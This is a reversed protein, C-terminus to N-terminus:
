ERKPIRLLGNLQSVGVAARAARQRMVEQVISAPLEQEGRVPADRNGLDGDGGVGGDSSAGPLLVDGTGEHQGQDSGRSANRSVWSELGAIAWMRLLFPGLNPEGQRDPRATVYFEEGHRSVTVGNFKGVSRAVLVQACRPIKSVIEYTHERLGVMVPRHDLHRYLPCYGWWFTPTPCFPCPLEGNSVEALCPKSRRGATEHCLFWWPQGALYAAFTQGAKPSVFSWNDRLCGEGPTRRPLM